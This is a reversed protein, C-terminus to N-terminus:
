AGGGIFVIVLELRLSGCPTQVYEPRIGISQLTCTADESFFVRSRSRSRSRSRCRCCGCCCCCCCSVESINHDVAHHMSEDTDWASPRCRLPFSLPFVAADVRFPKPETNFGLIPELIPALGSCLFFLLGDGVWPITAMKQVSLLNHNGIVSGKRTAACEALNGGARFWSTHPLVSNRNQQQPAPVALARVCQQQLPCM